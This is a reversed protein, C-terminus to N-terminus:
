WWKSLFHFAVWIVLAAMTLSGIICTIIFAKGAKMVRNFNKDFNNFPDSQYKRKGLYPEETGKLYAYKNTIM